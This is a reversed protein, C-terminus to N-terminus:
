KSIKLIEFPKTEGDITDKFWIGQNKQWVSPDRFKDAIQDFEDETMDVYELWRNLDIPKVHDMKNIIDIGEDRDIQGDRIDKCVHDTARGYGFKIFKMYDHIGNEQMEDVNSFWRYTRDFPKQSEKWGYQDRTSKYNKNGYYRWGMM